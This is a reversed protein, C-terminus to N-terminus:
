PALEKEVLTFGYVGRRVDEATLAQFIRRWGQVWLRDTGQGPPIPRRSEISVIRHGDLAIRHYAGLYPIAQYLEIAAFDEARLPPGAVFDPYSEPTGGGALHELYSDRTLETM